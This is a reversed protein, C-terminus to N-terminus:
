ADVEKDADPLVVVPLDSETVLSERTDGSFLDWWRKGGRPTFTICTAGIDHATDIITAAVDTGYRLTTEVEVGADDSEERIHDFMAEALEERQEVSAKDPAGGAKEIVHVFVPDGGNAAIRPLVAAATAAADDDNAVPILPRDFLPAITEEDM